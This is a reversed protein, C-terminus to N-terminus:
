LISAARPRAQKPAKAISRPRTRLILFDQIAEETIRYRPKKKGNGINAAQLDESAIAALVARRNVNLRKAAEDVTYIPTM